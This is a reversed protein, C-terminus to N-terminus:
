AAGDVFDAAFEGLAIRNPLGTKTMLSGVHREVTRPSLHLRDAIERNGLRGVLLGLVEFERATVGASRLVAPIEDTGSRRQTVKAGARRLLARCAGAVAPVGTRHFHDEATRLWSVPDGWGDALAAEGVLRLGLHRSTAYPEGVDLAEAVSASAADVRSERGLLVAQAFLTFQRDWRLASAPNVTVAELEAWGSQGYLVTLLVHMGHRGSLFYVSSGNDESSVARELESLARPRDEELLACFAAALGHVRPAHLTLDGQWREFEALAADMEKRNGRHGALVARVLLVYQTTELLRLRTTSVLVRGALSAARTFDGHLVSHLAISAEAQYQATVAGVRTAVERARELRALDGHRLADDNGLRILAHIEWIPLEHQVALARARELFATAEDPDRHRTLGGLLQLAQCAVVPLPVREAVEAAQRAMREAAALQDQGAVDLALHAAVVDVPALDEASADPGLLARALRVQEHGDDSRGAVTAAWALRTHLTARRRATVGGVRALEGVSALAREVLGAEALAHLLLELAEARAAVDDPPLYELARDLLAVASTAAGLALARRGVETYRLGAAGRDGADVRLAAVVECWEGPLGPHVVEVADALAGALREHEHRDLQALVAERSLRHHFAYWDATQEDPAVLQGALDDQLLSLLDRDSLGTVRQVVALPFRPGFAAAVSLLERSRPGLQAVRRALPRALGTTLVAGADGTLRWSTGDAVLVGDDVMATVLEEALFPNGSSGAWLLDVAADPIGAPDADLCAGAMRRLDARPLRDLHILECCGRRAAADALARAACDEDRIAGVLLTPQLEVNDVLYEVVALTEPDAENLDDLNVLCGRDRGVRGTLRLVAEALVVLSEGDRDQGPTGWDPVLRGLIPGYPGLDAPEVPEARLLSLIAETLPRFPASPGISSARGRMLGMGATYALETAAAALRSKGIGSEGVLFVAGGRGARAAALARELTRLESDRGVLSTSRHRM